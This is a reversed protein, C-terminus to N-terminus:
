SSFSRHRICIAAPSRRLKNGAFLADAVGFFNETQRLDRDLASLINKADAREAHIPIQAHDHVFRHVGALNWGAGVALFGAKKQQM